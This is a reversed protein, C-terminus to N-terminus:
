EGPGLKPKNNKFILDSPSRRLDKLLQNSELLLIKFLELNSLLSFRLDDFNELKDDTKKILNNFLTSSNNINELSLRANKSLISVEDAMIGLKKSTTILNENLLDFNQNINSSLTALNQLILEVNKLNKDSLLIKSKNDATKVLSFIHESQKDIATFFSEKFKIIPIYTKTSILKKSNKSGGQLQIFKLGTIGQLQLTAFTDEKIPTNKKVKILINVSLNDKEDISIKEVNGIEVGLLRVPAKVSLGAVSEQTHIEYFSFEEDKSYGEFWIIFIFSFFFVGFVFFGIWFYSAKNEM